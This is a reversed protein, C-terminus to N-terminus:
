TQESALRKGLFMVLVGVALLMGWAAIGTVIKDDGFWAPSADPLCETFIRNFKLLFVWGAHLGISLYLSGTRLYAIGLVMGVLTLGVVGPILTTAHQFPELFRLLTTFGASWDWHDLVVHPRAKFYHLVAYFVSTVFLAYRTKMERMLSQLVFGRFFIEEICGVVLGTGLAQLFKQLVKLQPIEFAHFSVAGCTKLFAILFFLSVVGMAFGTRLLFFWRSPRILSQRLSEQIKLSRRCLILLLFAFVMFVRSLVRDFPYPIGGLVGQLVLHIPPAFLCGLLIIALFILLIQTWVRM